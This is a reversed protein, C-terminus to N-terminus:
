NARKLIKIVNYAVIQPVSISMIVITCVNAFFVSAGFYSLELCLFGYMAQVNFSSFSFKKMIFGVSYYLIIFHLYLYCSMVCICLFMPLIFKWLYVLTVDSAGVSFCTRSRQNCGNLQMHHLDPLLRFYMEVVIAM